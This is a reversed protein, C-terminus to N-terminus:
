DKDRAWMCLYVYLCSAKETSVLSQWREIYVGESFSSLSISHFAVGVWGSSSKAKIFCSLMMWHSKSIFVFIKAVKKKNKWQVGSNVGKASLKLGGVGREGGVNGVLQVSWLVCM